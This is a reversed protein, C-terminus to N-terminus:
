GAMQGRGEQKSDRREGREEEGKRRNMRIMKCKVDARERRDEDREKTKV